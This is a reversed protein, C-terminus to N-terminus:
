CQPQDGECSKIMVMQEMSWKEGKSAVKHGDDWMVM